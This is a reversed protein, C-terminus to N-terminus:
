QVTNHRILALVHKLKKASVSPTLIVRLIPVEVTPQRIAGVLYGQSMLGKQIFLAFENSEMEMPLILSKIEIGLYAKVV